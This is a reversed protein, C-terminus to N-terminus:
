KGWTGDKLLKAIIGYNALDAFTDEVSENKADKPATYESPKALELHFGYLSMLRAMKDWLRVVTGLEGTGMINAPSYDANKDMHVRYMHMLQSMFAEVQIPCRNETIHCPVDAPYTPEYGEPHESGPEFFIWLNHEVAYNFEETAGESKEWDKLMYIADCRLLMQLDGDMIERVSLGHKHFDQTNKHPCIVAHGVKWLQLAIEKAKQVNKDPDGHTSYPGAVYILM